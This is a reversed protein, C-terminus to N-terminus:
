FCFYLCLDILFLTRYSVVFVVFLDRVGASLLLLAAAAARHM